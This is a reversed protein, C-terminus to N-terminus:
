SNFDYFNTNGIHAKLGVKKNVGVKHDTRLQWNYKNGIEAITNMNDTYKNDDETTEGADEEFAPCVM